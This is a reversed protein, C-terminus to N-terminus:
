RLQAGPLYKLTYTNAGPPITLMFSKDDVERENPEQDKFTTGGFILLRIEKHKHPIREGLRWNQPAKAQNNVQMQEFSDSCCPLVILGFHAKGMQSKCEEETPRTEDLGSILQKAYSPDEQQDVSPQTHTLKLALAQRQPQQGLLPEMRAYHVPSGRAMGLDMVPLPMDSSTNSVLSSSDQRTAFGFRNYSKVSSVGSRASLSSRQAQLLNTAKHITPSPIIRKRDATSVFKSLGGGASGSGSSQYMTTIAKQDECSQTFSDESVDELRDVSCLTVGRKSVITSTKLRKLAPHKVEEEEYLVSDSSNDIEDIMTQDEVKQPEMDSDDESDRDTWKNQQRLMRLRDSEQVKLLYERTETYILENNIAERTDLSLTVWADPRRMDLKYIDFDHDDFGGIQFVFRNNITVLAPHFKGIPVDPLREYEKDCIDYMYCDPDAMPVSRMGM